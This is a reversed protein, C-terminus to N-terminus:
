TDNEKERDNTAVEPAQDGWTSWGPRARRAFIELRPEPSVAEIVEYSEDPKASHETRPAFMVSPPRNAALPVMAAGRTGFLLLEHAGRAYQGLGIQLAEEAITITDTEGHTIGGDRLKVWAFTRVYRFGLQDMLSLGDLLFNDTVWVWLHASPAPNFVSSRDQWEARIITKAIDSLAMLSYHNQAGRGGGGYEAWPPDM